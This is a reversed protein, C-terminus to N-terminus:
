QFIYGAEKCGVKKEIIKINPILKYTLESGLKTKNPNFLEKIINIQKENYNKAFEYAERSFSNYIDPNSMVNVIANAFEKSTNAAIFPNRECKLGEASHSSTILIKSRGLAEINKIKLGTGVIGPNIVIDAKNYANNIDKVEGLKIVGEHNEIFKCINGALILKTTPIKERVLSLSENIFRNVGDINASNATGLYL